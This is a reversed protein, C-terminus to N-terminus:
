PIKHCIRQFKQLCLGGIGSSYFGAAFAIGREMWACHSNPLQTLVGNEFPELLLTAITDHVVIIFFFSGALKRWMVPCLFLCVCCSRAEGAKEWSAPRSDSGSERYLWLDLSIQFSGAVWCLCLRIIIKMRARLEIQPQGKTDCGNGFHIM